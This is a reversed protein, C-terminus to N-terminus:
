KGESSEGFVGGYGKKMNEWDEFQFVGVTDIEMHEKLEQKLVTRTKKVIGRKECYRLELTDGPVIHMTAELCFKKLWKIKM